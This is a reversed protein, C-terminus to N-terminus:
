RMKRRNWTGEPRTRHVFGDLTAPLDMSLFGDRHYGSLSTKKETIEISRTM